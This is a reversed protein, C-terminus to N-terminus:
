FGLSNTFPASPRLLPIAFAADVKPVASPLSTQTVASEHLCTSTWTAATPSSRLFRKCPGVFDDPVCISDGGIFVTQATARAAQTGSSSVLKWPAWVGRHFAQPSPATISCLVVFFQAEGKGEGVGGISNAGSFVPCRFRSRWVMLRSFGIDLVRGAPILLLHLVFARFAFRQVGLVIVRGWNEEWARFEESSGRGRLAIGPQLSAAVRFRGIRGDDCKM